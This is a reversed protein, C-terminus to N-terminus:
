TGTGGKGGSGPANREPTLTAFVEGGMEEVDVAAPATDRRAGLRGRVQRREAASIIGTALTGGAFVIVVVTGRVLLGLWAREIWPVFVAAAVYAALGTLVLLAIRRLEYERPYVRQAFFGAVGALVAYALATAIAAGIAGFRPILLLNAAISTAAAAGTAIPYYVTRKTINLGISTLLYVGEFAVGLAIFPVVRAADYFAPVTMLRVLDGAIASVGATLLALVAIGYTTVLAFLRGAQPEKMAGFYFPAWAYEFASLFLKLALGLSAGISYVGVDALTAFKSLIYRDAGAMVQHGMGHPLRPLGFALAERLLPMSAVPRVLHLFTPLLVAAFVLTV